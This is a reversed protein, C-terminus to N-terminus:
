MLWHTMFAVEAFSILFLVTGLPFKNMTKILRRVEAMRHSHEKTKSKTKM